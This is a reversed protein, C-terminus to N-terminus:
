KECLREIAKLIGEKNLGYKALLIDPAGHEIFEDPYGLCHTRAEAGKAALLELVASGFGGAIVGDEVTLVRGTKKAYELILKEDLPKLYRPDIVAVSHKSEKAAALCANAMV